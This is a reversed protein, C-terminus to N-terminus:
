SSEFKHSLFACRGAKPSGQQSWLLSGPRPPAWPWPQTQQPDAREESPPSLGLALPFIVSSLRREQRLGPPLLVWYLGPLRSEFGSQVGLQMPIGPPDGARQPDRIRGCPIPNYGNKIKPTTREFLFLSAGDIDGHRCLHPSKAGEERGCGQGSKNKEDLKWLASQPGERANPHPLTSRPNGTWWSSVTRPASPCASLCHCLEKAPPM